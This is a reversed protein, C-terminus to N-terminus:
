GNINTLKENVTVFLKVINKHEYFLNRDEAFMIPNSIRSSSPIANVYVLFLFPGLISGQPVGCITSRIDSKSDSIIQIYQERNKLYSRFWALNTGKIGFNLAKKLANYQWYTLSRPYILLFGLSTITTKLYDIFKTLCNLLPM